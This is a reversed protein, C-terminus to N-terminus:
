SKICRNKRAIMQCPGSTTFCSSSRRSLIKLFLDATKLSTNWKHDPFKAMLREIARRLETPKARMSPMAMAFKTLLVKNHLLGEGNAQSGKALEYYGLDFVDKKSPTEDWYELLRKDM